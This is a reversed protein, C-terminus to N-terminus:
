ATRVFFFPGGFVDKHVLGRLVVGLDAMCPCISTLGTALLTLPKAAINSM